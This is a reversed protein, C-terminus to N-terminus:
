SAGLITRDKYNNYLGREVAASIDAQLDIGAEAVVALAHEIADGDQSRDVGNILLTVLDGSTDFEFVLHTKFYYELRATKM